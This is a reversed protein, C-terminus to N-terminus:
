WVKFKALLKVFYDPLESDYLVFENKTPHVFGLTKAHLVQGTVDFNRLKKGYREDGLVYHGIHAMHVRIQHTRGTRLNLKVYTINMLREIVKYETIASKGNKKNVAMRKRENPDRGIPLDIIGTNEKIIGNVLAYYTREISHEKFQNALSEHAKNNKAVVLLGSTDMDIRHVIGPRIIGNIDSLNGKCKYMIANVLTDCNHGYSPHVVMGKAKNVVILDDDEYVINIPIDQAVIDLLEPEPIDIVVNDNLNVKYSSKIVKNNVLVLKKEILEKIYTRSIDELTNSLFLDIRVNDTTVIIEKRM